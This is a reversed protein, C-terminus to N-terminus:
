IDEFPNKGDRDEVEIVWLDRDRDIARRIYEDARTETLLDDKLASVWGLRGDIDRQQTKLYCHGDLLAIKVLLMGGSADGKQMVYAPRGEMALQRMVGGAWLHTPIRDEPM